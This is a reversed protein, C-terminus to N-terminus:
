VVMLKAMEEYANFVPDKKSLKVVPFLILTTFGHKDSNPPPM